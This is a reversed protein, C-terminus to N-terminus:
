VKVVFVLVNMPRLVLSMEFCRTLGVSIESLLLYFTDTFLQAITSFVLRKMTFCGDVLSSLFTRIANKQLLVQLNEYMETMHVAHALPISPFKNGNHLLV